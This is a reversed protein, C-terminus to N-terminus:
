EPSPSASRRSPLASWQLSPGLAPRGAFTAFAEPSQENLSAALLVLCVSLGLAMAAQVVIPSGSSEGVHEAFEEFVNEFSLAIVLSWAQLTMVCQALERKAKSRARKLAAERTTALTRKPRMGCGTLLYRCLSDGDRQGQPQQQAQPLKRCSSPVCCSLCSRRGSLFRWVTLLLVGLTLATVVLLYVLSGAWTEPCLMVKFSCLSLASSVWTYAAFGSMLTWVRNFMHQSLSISTLVASVSSRRHRRSGESQAADASETGDEKQEKHETVTAAAAAAAAGDDDGGGGSGEGGTTRVWCDHLKKSWAEGKLLLSTALVATLTMVAFLVWQDTSSLSSCSSALAACSGEDPDITGGGSGSSHNGASTNGNAASLPQQQQQQQQQLLLILLERSDLTCVACSWPAAANSGGNGGANGGGNGTRPAPSGCAMCMASAGDNM